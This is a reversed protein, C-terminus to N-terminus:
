PCTSITIVGSNSWLQCHPTPASTPLFPLQTVNIVTGGQTYRVTDTSALTGVFTTTGGSPMFGTDNIINLGGDSFFNYPGYTAMDGYYNGSLQNAAASATFAIGTAAATGTNNTFSNGILNNGNSGLTLLEAGASGFNAYIENGIFQTEGGSLYVQRNGGEFSSAIVQTGISEFCGQYFVRNTTASNHWGHFNVVRGSAAMELSCYTNNASQSADVGEINSFHGDHAGSKVWVSRRGSDIIQIDNVTNTIFGTTALIGTTILTNQADLVIGNGYNHAVNDNELITGQGYIAIGNQQNPDASATQNASNGDINCGSITIYNDGVGGAALFHSSRIVATNAGTALRITPNGICVINTNTVPVIPSGVIIASGLNYILVARGSSAGLTIAANIAASDDASGNQLAGEARIDIGGSIASALSLATTTGSPTITTNTLVGSVPTGLAPAVLTKNSLTQADTTGVIAGSAPFTETTGAIKFTNTFNNTGTWTNNGSFISSLPGCDSLLTGVLNNWCALDGSVTTPPGVIGGVVFPFAYSTGNVNFAFPLAPAAGAAGYALLGGGHANPSLCFYHYGGANTTPADYNCWNTGFIGTGQSAYPPTGTGRAVYLGESMGLGAAGGGAPGSDQIVPQSNGSNSYMPAHAITWPGGQLPVSQAPAQSSCAALAIFALGALISRLM